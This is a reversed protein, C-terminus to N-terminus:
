AVVREDRERLPGTLTAPQHHGAAVEAELADVRGGVEAAARDRRDQRHRHDRAVVANFHRLAGGDGGRPLVRQGRQELARRLQEAVVLDGGTLVGGQHGGDVGVRQERHALDALAAAQRPGGVDARVPAGLLEQVPVAEGREDAAHEAPEGTLRDPRLASQGDGDDEVAVRAVVVGDRDQERDARGRDVQERHGGAEAVARDLVRGAVRQAHEGQRARGAYRDGLTGGPRQLTLEGEAVVDVALGTQVPRVQRLRGEVRDPLTRDLEDGAGQSL